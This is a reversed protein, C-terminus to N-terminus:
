LHQVRKIAFTYMNEGSCRNSILSSIFRSSRGNGDYFPHVYGYFYHSIAVRIMLPIDEHNNMFNLLKGMAVVIDKEPRKSVERSNILM